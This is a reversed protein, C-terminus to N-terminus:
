VIICCGQATKKKEEVPSSPLNEGKMHQPPTENEPGSEATSSLVRPGLLSAKVDSERMISLNENYGEPIVEKGKLLSPPPLSPPAPPVVTSSMVSSSSSLAAIKVRYAVKRHASSALSLDGIIVPATSSRKALPPRSITVGSSETAPGTTSASVHSPTYSSANPTTESFESERPTRPPTSTTERMTVTTHESMSSGRNLVAIGLTARPAEVVGHFLKEHLAHCRLQDGDLGLFTKVAAQQKDNM